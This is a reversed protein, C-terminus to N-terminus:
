LHRRKGPHYSWSGARIFRVRSNCKMFEPIQPSTRMTLSAAVTLPLIALGATRLTM